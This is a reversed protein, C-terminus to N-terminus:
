SKGTPKLNGIVFLFQGWWNLPVQYLNDDTPWGTWYTTNSLSPYTTQIIPIAPLNKYFLGLAKDFLDKNKPDTPDASDLKVAVDNFEKDMFRVENGQVATQGIPVAKDAELTTYLQNPDFSVCCLWYSIIDFDGNNRKQTFIASQYSRTTADIGLKKLEQALLDGIQYEPNGVVAPTSIEWSIPKGQYTRKGDAGAKAGMEDFLSAAKQPNYTLAYQDAIDKNEWRANSKYDAWPYQAPPTQILWVSDGIKKRDLLYSLAWHTRADSLLGKSPDSNTWIARPCPDRFATEILANPYSDKIQKMHAYDFSTTLDTQARKFEEVASDVVPASRYVVYEPKPDMVDKNWYNPNKKWIFMLQDPIVRDLKYQGTRVPPNDRFTTPDVKGWVHEHVTEFGRVIGCLFIYHFRPHDTKLTVVVTQPDPATVKDMFKRIDAGYLLATNKQIMELTFKVDTSTFPKDDNWKVKPNLKLTLETFTPNYSWSQALWPEIKGAAYNAYFLHEKCSQQFGAQYQEGNPIYPNFGDFITFLSQDVILTQNRPTPAISGKEPQVNATSAPKTPAAAAAPTAGGTAAAAPSAAAPKTAAAPASTAAPATTAAPAATAAPKPAETPKAPATTATPAPTSCAALFATSALSGAAFAATKLLRRRNLRTGATRASLEM